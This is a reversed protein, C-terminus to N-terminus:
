PQDPSDQEGQIQKKYYRADDKMRKLGTEADNFTMFLALESEDVCLSTDHRVDIKDKVVKTIRDGDFGLIEAALKAFDYKSIPYKGATHFVGNKDENIIREIIECLDRVYTPSNYVNTFINAEEGKNCTEMLWNLFMPRDSWGYVASTRCIAYDTAESVHFEAMMKSMGYATVPDPTDDFAYMGRRGSFVHDSSLLIIKAGSLHNCINRTGIENVMFTEAPNKACWGLDKKGACHIVVDSDCEWMLSDVESENTIDVSKGIGIADFYDVMYRGIFGEAGTVLIKM